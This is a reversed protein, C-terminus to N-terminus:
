KKRRYLATVWLQRFDNYNGQVFTVELVYQADETLAGTVTSDIIGFYNGNSPSVYDLTGTGLITGGPTTKLAYTITASNLYLDNEEDFAGNWKLNRDSGIYLVNNV